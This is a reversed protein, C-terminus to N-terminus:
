SIKLFDKKKKKTGWTHISGMDENDTNSKCM